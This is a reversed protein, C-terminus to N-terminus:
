SAACTSGSDDRSLVDEAGVPRRLTQHPLQMGHGAVVDLVLEIGEEIPFQFQPLRKSLADFVPEAAYERWAEVFPEDALPFSLGRAADVAFDNQNYELLEDTEADTAGFRKLVERRASESPM